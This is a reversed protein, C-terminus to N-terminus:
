LKNNNIDFYSAFINWIKTYRESASTISRDSLIENVKVRVTKNYPFDFWKELEILIIAAQQDKSPEKGKKDESTPIFGRKNLADYVREAFAEPGTNTHTHVGEMLTNEIIKIAETKDIKSESPKVPSSRKLMEDRAWKAAEQEFESKNWDNYIDPNNTFGKPEPFQKEIEEDTLPSVNKQEGYPLHNTLHGSEILADVYKAAISKEYASVYGSGKTGRQKSILEGLIIIAEDRNMYAPRGARVESASIVTLPSQSSPKLDSERQQMALGMLWIVKKRDFVENKSELGSLLEEATKM